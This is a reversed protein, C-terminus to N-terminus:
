SSEPRDRKAREAKVQANLEVSRIIARTEDTGFSEQEFGLAKVARTPRWAFYTKGRIRRATLRSINVRVM